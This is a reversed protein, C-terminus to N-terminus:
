RRRSRSRPSAPRRGRRAAVRPRRAVAAADGRGRDRVEAGLEADVLRQRDIGAAEAHEGAVVELAARVEADAGDAHAQEVAVAVEALVHEGVAPLGFGVVVEIGVAQRDRAHEAAVARREDDFDREAVRREM